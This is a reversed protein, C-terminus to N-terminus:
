ASDGTAGIVEKGLYPQLVEPVEISGDRRQNNELIAILARSIAVATGNLTHVFDTGKKGAVKYRVNLRRAQYDTCNSASTVEGFEGAEGRGPMWAELDYKRYAPGGLDGSATDIVRYPVGLGDFVQCQVECLEELLDDSQDPLAFLFMEVKTFQHVRYLGRSARGAAGAETRYCHSIGCLRLPLDAADIVQGSYLGGLTIEATAVLNLDSQEVSYIQTEPGRPAFGIGQLIETRALDPTITPTFGRKLLLELAYRQLALELLVCDNKLFYFGQGAVRAGGAFDVLQHREALELHDLPEFDFEPVAATGRRLEVSDAEAGEPVAPHTLNPVAALIVDAEHQLKDVEGQVEEKQARLRRGEAMRAEREEQDKAKGISKSVSNAQRNLEEAQAQLSKRATELEVFRGVDVQVGRKESNAQVRSANELVLKRDLM